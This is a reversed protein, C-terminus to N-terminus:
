NQFSRVIPLLVFVISNRKFMNKHMTSSLISSKHVYAAYQCPLWIVFIM